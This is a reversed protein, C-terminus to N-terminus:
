DVASFCLVVRLDLWVCGVGGPRLKAPKSGASQTAAAGGAGAAAAAAAAARQKEAKKGGKKHLFVGGKPRGQKRQKQGPKTPRPKGGKFKM